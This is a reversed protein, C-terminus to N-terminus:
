KLRWSNNKLIHFVFSYIISLILCINTGCKLLNLNISESYKISGCYLIVTHFVLAGPLIYFLFGELLKSYRRKTFYYEANSTVILASCFFLIVCDRYIKEFYFNDIFDIKVLFFLFILQLLGFFVSIINLFIIKGIAKIMNLVIVERETFNVRSAKGAWRVPIRYVSFKLTCFGNGGARLLTRTGAVRARQERGM